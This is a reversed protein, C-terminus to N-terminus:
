KDTLEYKTASGQGIREAEGARILLSLLKLTRQNKMGCAESIEGTTSSGNSHLHERIQDLQQMRSVLALQHKHERWLRTDERFSPSGLPPKPISLAARFNDITGWLRNIRSHLSHGKSTSQLETTTLHHGAKEVLEQYKEICETRKSEKRYDALEKENISYATLLKHLNSNSIGNLRAVDSLNGMKKYDDIIKDKPVYPYERPNYDFLGIKKGKNLLQRVRERTLGLHKGVAALTGLQEYLAHINRLRETENSPKNFPEITNSAGLAAVVKKALASSIPKGEYIKRLSLDTIGLNSAVDFMDIDSKIIEKLRLSLATIPNTKSDDSSSLPTQAEFSIGLKTQTSKSVPQGRELKRITSPYVGRHHPARLRSTESHNNHNSPRSNPHPPAISFDTEELAKVVKNITPRSVPVGALLKKITTTSVDLKVSAAFIGGCSKVFDELSVDLEREAMMSGPKEPSGNNSIGSNHRPIRLPGVAEEIRDLIHDPVPEDRLIQEIFFTPVDLKSSAAYAGGSSSIFEKLRHQATHTYDDAKPENVPKGQSIDSSSGFDVKRIRLPGVAKEIRDLIHEPVPQDRLIQDIFVIPVNLEM